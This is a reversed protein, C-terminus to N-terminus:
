KQTMNLAKVGGGCDNTVWASVRVVIRSWPLQPPLPLTVSFQDGKAETQTSALLYNNARENNAVIVRLADDAKETTMDPVKELAAPSSSLPRELAVIVTAGTLRAPLSGNVTISQGASPTGAVDFRVDRSVVPLRMAPDGLLMWMELHERRATEMTEQGGSGDASDLLAYTAADMKGRALGEATALWYDGLREPPQPKAFCTMLGQAAWQGPASYSEGTAGIIAAPGHPNRMAALGYGDGDKNSQLAYCGCTFFPGNGHPISMAAFADRGLFDMEGANSHGLYVSFLAGQQFMNSVANAALPPPYFFRSPPVNFLARVRWSPDLQALDGDVTGQVYLDPLMGGGPDGVLLLVGSRWGAPLRDDEFRLTKEVMARLEAETRAPFRGVSITPAGEADPFGFGADTQSGKMRAVSGRLSAVFPPAGALLVCTQGPASAEATRLRSLILAGNTADDSSDVVLVHYAAQKRRDILPRLASTWTKPAVVIWQAAM